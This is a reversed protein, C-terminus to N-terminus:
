ILLKCKPIRKALKWCSCGTSQNIEKASVFVRLKYTYYKRRRQFWTGNRTWCCDAKQVFEIIKTWGISLLSFIIVNFKIPLLFFDGFLLLFFFWNTWRFNKNCSSPQFFMFYHCCQFWLSFSSILGIHNPRIKLSFNRLTM